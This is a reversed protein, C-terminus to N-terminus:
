GQIKFTTQSQALTYCLSHICGCLGECVYWQVTYVGDTFPDYQNPKAKLGASQTYTGPNQQYQLWDDELPMGNNKPSLIVIAVDSTGTANIVTYGVTFKFEGDRKGVAPSVVNATIKAAANPTSACADLMMCVWVPDPDTDQLLNSFETIGVYDCLLDCVLAEVQNPLQGCVAACGGLVGGNLIIQILENITQDMFQVCIDCGVGALNNKDQPRHKAKEISSALAANALLAAVLVLAFLRM